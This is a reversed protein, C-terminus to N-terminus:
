KKKPKDDDDDLLDEDLELELDDLGLIEDVDAEDRDLKMATVASADADEHLLPAADAPNIKAPKGDIQVIFTVPGISLRDGASLKAEAVRKGNVFTGNSSNLDRLLARDDTVIVECHHRSTDRTPVRLECERARGLVTKGRRLPFDRREEDRFMVLVVQMARDQQVGDRAPGFRGASRM